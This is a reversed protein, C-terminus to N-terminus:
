HQLALGVFRFHENNGVRFCPETIEGSKNYSYVEKKSSGVNSCPVKSFGSLNMVYKDEQVIFFPPPFPPTGTFSRSVRKVKQRVPLDTEVERYSFFSRHFSICPTPYGAPPVTSVAISSHRKFAYHAAQM